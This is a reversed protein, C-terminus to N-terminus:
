ASTRPTSLSEIFAHAGKTAVVLQDRHGRAQLWDGIIRESRRKEGPVWDSYIRATDIFNGGLEVYRDLLAFSEKETITNGYVTGGLCLPSVQLSTGPLLIAKM